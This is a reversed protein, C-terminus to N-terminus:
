NLQICLFILYVTSNNSTDRDKVKKSALFTTTRSSLLSQSFDSGNQLTTCHQEGHVPQCRSLSQTISCFQPIAEQSSHNSDSTDTTEDGLLSMAFIKSFYISMGHLHLGTQLPCEHFLFYQDKYTPLQQKKLGLWQLFLAFKLCETSTNVKPCNESM